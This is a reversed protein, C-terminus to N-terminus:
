QPSKLSSNIWHGTASSGKSITSKLIIKRGWAIGVCFFECFCIILNFINFLASVSWLYISSCHDESPKKREYCSYHHHDLHVSILYCLIGVRTPWQTTLKPGDASLMPFELQQFSFGWLTKKTQKNNKKSNASYLCHFDCSTDCLPGNLPM